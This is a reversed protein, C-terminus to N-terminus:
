YVDIVPKMKKGAAGETYQRKSEIVIKMTKIDPSVMQDIQDNM